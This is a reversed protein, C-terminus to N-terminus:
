LGTKYNTKKTSKTKQVLCLPVWIRLTLINQNDDNRKGVVRRIDEM